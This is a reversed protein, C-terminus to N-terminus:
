SRCAGPTNGCAAAVQLLRVGHTPTQITISHNSHGDSAAPLPHLQYLRQKARRQPVGAAAQQTCTSASSDTKSRTRTCSRSRAVLVMHMAHCRNHQRCTWTSAKPMFAHKILFHVACKSNGRV